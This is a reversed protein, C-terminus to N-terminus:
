SVIYKRAVEIFNIVQDRIWKKNKNLEKAMLKAIVPAMEISAKADLLILRTRRALFDEVTRAMEYRVTWIVEGAVISFNPHLLEKYSKDERLLTEIAMADSGYIQLDGFEDPHNHYGHIQLEQTVSPELDLHALVAAHDITDEAMKRYTTWKGGAITVLGSRSINITHDRSIAATNEEDGSKVLPRLGAFTSLIDSRSPDKTLYRAAHQLLFDIEEKFPVPELPYENVPTETTGILVRDHWPIAFLVRGDDTEPVMIASDGPLFSRHLIIHVGQSCTIINKVSKDDMKRISDSFVGTANIVVKTNLKYKKNTEMDIAEVGVIQEEDKLM